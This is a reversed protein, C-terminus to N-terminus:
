QPEQLLRVLVDTYSLIRLYGVVDKSTNWPRDFLLVEKLDPSNLKADVVNKIHDDLFFEAGDIRNIFDSKRDGKGHQNCVYIDDILPLLSDIDRYLATVSSESPRSTLLVFRYGLGKVSTIFDEAGRYTYAPIDWINAWFEENLKPDMGLAWAHNWSTLDTPLIETGLIKTWLTSFATSTDLLCGDMDCVFTKM